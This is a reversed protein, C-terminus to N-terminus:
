RPDTGRAQGLVEAGTPPVTGSAVGAVSANLFQGLVFSRTAIYLYLLIVIAIGIGGYLDDVRELRGVFYIGTAISLGRLTATVLLAGPVLGWVSEAGHPLLWMAAVALAAVIATVLLWAGLDGIPGRSFLFPGLAQLGIAGTAVASFVVSAALGSGKARDPHFRWAVVSTLMAARVAGRGAWLMLVLGVISLAWRARNSDAAADAVVRAVAANFGSSRAVDEPRRDTESAVLGIVSVAFLSAPLQWLFLRYAMGGALLPGARSRDADWAEYAIRVWSRRERETELRTRADDRLIEARRRADAVRGRPSRRRPEGKPTM